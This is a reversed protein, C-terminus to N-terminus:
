DWDCSRRRPQPRRDRRAHRPAGRLRQVSVRPRRPRRGAGLARRASSARPPSRPSVREGHERATPRSCSASRPRGSTCTSARASTPSTSSTRARRPSWRLLGALAGPRDPVVTVFCPQAPGRGDRRPPHVRRPARRRRQRGLARRLDRGRRAPPGQPPPDGRRAAAGAGEVVLKSRELLLVMAEAVEDDSVTVVEDVYSSRGAAADPEGPRKVAIGDCITTASAHASRGTRRSRRRTRRAPRPRSASSGAGACGRGAAAIAIGAALGGGGLPVVILRTAPAARRDRPRDNGPRRGRRPRRLPPHLTTGTERPTSARPPARGRRLRRGVLRVNGGHGRVAAVKALPASVPM